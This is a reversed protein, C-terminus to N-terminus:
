QGNWRTAPSRGSRAVYTFDGSELRRARYGVRPSACRWIFALTAAAHPQGTPKLLIRFGNSFASGGTPGVVAQYGLSYDKM